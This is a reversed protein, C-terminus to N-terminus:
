LKIKHNAPVIFKKRRREIDLDASQGSNSSGNSDSFKHEKKLEILNQQRWKNTHEFELRKYLELHIM